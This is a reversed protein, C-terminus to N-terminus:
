LGKSTTTLVYRRRGSVSAIDSEIESLLGRLKDMDSQAWTMSRGDAATVTVVRQGTALALIAAKVTALDAETYAIGTGTLNAVFGQVGAEANPNNRALERSRARLAGLTSTLIANPGINGLGWTRMRRGVAAGEYGERLARIPIRNGRSDLVKLYSM